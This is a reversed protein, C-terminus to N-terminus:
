IEFDDSKPPFQIAQEAQTLLGIARFNDKLMAYELLARVHKLAEETSGISLEDKDNTALDIIQPEAANFVPIHDVERAPKAREKYGKRTEQMGVQSAEESKRKRNRRVRPTLVTQVSGISVMIGHQVDEVAENSPYDDSLFTSMASYHDMTLIQSTIPDDKLIETMEDYFQWNPHFDPGKALHKDRICYYTKKLNRFKRDLQVADIDTIGLHELAVVLEGWVNKIKKNPDRFDAQREKYLSLLMRTNAANWKRDECKVDM